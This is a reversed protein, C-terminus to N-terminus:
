KPLPSELLLHIADKYTQVGPVQQFDTCKVESRINITKVMLAKATVQEVFHTLSWRGDLADAQEVEVKGGPYIHALMGWGFDVGQFIAGDIRVITKTATDIWIRGRLGTLAQSATSPPNFKPDPAYELVVQPASSGAAPTQDAAYTYIMAQPMLKILEIAQKKSNAASRAHKAFEAPDELLGSLRAREARDEEESLPRDDRMLLRAVTGDKSEIVDRLENGKTDVTHQKYRVYSGPHLVIEIERKAAAEVLPQIQAPTANAASTQACASLVPAAACLLVGALSGYALRNGRFTEIRSLLAM